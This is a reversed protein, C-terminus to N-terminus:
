LDTLKTVTEEIEELFSVFVLRGSTKMTTFYFENTRKKSSVDVQFFDNRSKRVKLYRDFGLPLNM